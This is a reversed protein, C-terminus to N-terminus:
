KLIPYMSTIRKMISKIQSEYNEGQAYRHGNINVFSNPRLLDDITKTDNQLYDKKILNIFPIVSEDQTGYTCVNEGNDHLGVSFVSNTKKSRPSQGFCSELNAIALTFPISFDNEECATIIAEPTLRTTSWGYGQNKMAWEMYGKCAEIKQLRITDTQEEQGRITDQSIKSHANLEVNADLLVSAAILVLFAIKIKTNM